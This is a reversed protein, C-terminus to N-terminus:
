GGAIRLLVQVQRQLESVEASLDVPVGAGARAIRAADRTLAADVVRLGEKVVQLKATKLAAIVRDQLARFVATGASGVILSVAALKIGQEPTLVWYVAIAAVAGVFLRALIGFDYLNPPKAYAFGGQPAEADVTKHPWEVNGELAILEYILGGIAGFLPAIWLPTVPSVTAQNFGYVSLSLLVVLGASAVLAPM